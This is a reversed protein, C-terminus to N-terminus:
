RNAASKALPFDDIIIATVMSLSSLLHLRSAVPLSLGLPDNSALHLAPIQAIGIQGLPQRREADSLGSLVDIVLDSPAAERGDEEQLTHLCDPDFVQWEIGSVSGGSEASFNAQKEDLM